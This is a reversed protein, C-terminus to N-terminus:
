CGTGSPLVRCLDNRVSKLAVAFGYSSPCMGKKGQDTQVYSVVGVVLHEEDKAGIRRGRLIPGGSDGLCVGAEPGSGLNRQPWKYYAPSEQFAEQWTVELATGVRESEILTAGYGSMTITDAAAESLDVKAFREPVHGNMNVRLVAVDPYPPSQPQTPNWSLPRIPRGAVVKGVFYPCTAGVPTDYCARRFELDGEKKPLFVRVSSDSLDRPKNRDNGAYLCHAATLATERDVMFLTCGAVRLAGDAARSPFAIFGVYPFGWPDFVHKLRKTKGDVQNDAPASAERLCNRKRDIVLPGQDKGSVSILGGPLPTGGVRIMVADKTIQLYLNKLSISDSSPTRVRLDMLKTLEVQRRLLDEVTLQDPSQGLYGLTVTPGVAERLLFSESRLKMAKTALNIASASQAADGTVGLSTADRYLQGKVAPPLQLFYDREPKRLSNHLQSEQATLLRDFRNSDGELDKMLARWRINETTTSRSSSAAEQTGTGPLDACLPVALVSSSFLLALVPTFVVKQMLVM